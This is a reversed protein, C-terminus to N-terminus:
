GPWLWFCVLGAVFNWPMTPMLQLEQLHGFFTGLPLGDFHPYDGTSHAVSCTECPKSPHHNEVCRVQVPRPKWTVEVDESPNIIKIWCIGPARTGKPSTKVHPCKESPTGGHSWRSLQLRSWRWSSLVLPIGWSPDPRGRLSSWVWSFCERRGQWYTQFKRQGEQVINHSFCFATKM